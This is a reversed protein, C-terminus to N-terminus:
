FGVGFMAPASGSPTRSESSVQRVPNDSTPPRKVVSRPRALEQAAPGGHNVAKITKEEAAQLAPEERSAEKITESTQLAPEERNVARIMEAQLVQAAPEERNVVEITKDESVQEEFVRLANSSPLDSASSDTKASAAAGLRVLRERARGAIGDTAVLGLVRLLPVDEVADILGILRSQALASEPADPNRVAFAWIAKPDGSAEIQEWEKASLTEARGSAVQTHPSVSLWVGLAVASGSLLGAVASVAFRRARGRRHNSLHLNYTARREPCKLVQYAAIVQRLQQEATRNGPNLDPHHAKAARHFAAKITEESANRPVGLIDYLTNM